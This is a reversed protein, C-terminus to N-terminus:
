GIIPPNTSPDQTFSVGKNYQLDVELHLTLSEVITATVDREFTVNVYIGYTHTSYEWPYTIEYVFRDKESSPHLVGHIRNSNLLLDTTNSYVKIDPFLHNGYFGEFEAQNDVHIPTEKLTADVKTANGWPKPFSCVTTENLWPELGFVHDIIYYFSLSNHYPPHTGFGPGTVSAFLGIDMDPFTWLQTAYNGLGGSHWVKRYGTFIFVITTGSLFPRPAANRILIRLM